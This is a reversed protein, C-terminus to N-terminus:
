FHLVVHRTNKVPKDVLGMSRAPATYFFSTCQLHPASMWHTLSSQLSLVPGHAMMLHGCEWSHVYFCEVGEEPTHMIGEHIPTVCHNYSIILFHWCLGKIPYVLWLFWLLWSPGMETHSYNQSICSQGTNVCFVNLDQCDITKSMPNILLVLISLKLCTLSFM